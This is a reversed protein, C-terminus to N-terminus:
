VQKFMSIHWEHAHGIFMIHNAAYAYYKEHYPLFIISLYYWDDLFLINIMNTLSKYTSVHRDYLYIIIRLALYVHIKFKILIIINQTDGYLRIVACTGYMPETGGPTENSVTIAILPHATCM